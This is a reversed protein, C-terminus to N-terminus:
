SESRTQTTTLAQVDLYEGEVVTSGDPARNFETFLRTLEKRLASAGDPETARL